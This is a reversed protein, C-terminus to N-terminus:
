FPKLEVYQPFNYQLLRYGTQAFEFARLIRAFTRDDDCKCSIVADGRELDIIPKRKLRRENEHVVQALTCALISAASCVIDQGMDAQRAHGKVTLTAELLEKNSTFSATIM